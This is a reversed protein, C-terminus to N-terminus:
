TFIYIFIFELRSQITTSEFHSEESDKELQKRSSMRDIYDIYTLYLYIVYKIELIYTYNHKINRILVKASLPIGKEM